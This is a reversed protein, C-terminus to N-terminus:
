VPGMKTKAGQPPTKAPLLSKRLRVPAPIQCNILDAKDFFYGRGTVGHLHGYYYGDGSVTLYKEKLKQYISDPQHVDNVILETPTLAAFNIANRHPVLGAEVIDNLIARMIGCHNDQPGTLQLTDSKASAPKATDANHRSAAKQPAALSQASVDKQDSAAKQPAAASQASAPGQSSAEKQPAAASQASAPSPIAVRTVLTDPVTQWIGTDRPVILKQHAAVRVRLQQRAVDILGEKIVIETRDPQSTVNFATGLVTITLDNVAIRFPNAADHAVTFFADGSLHIHRDTTFNKSYTIKATAALQISSGDPLIQTIPGALIVSNNNPLSPRLLWLLTITILIAAAALTAIAPWRRDRITASPIMTRRDLPTAGPIISRRDLPTAGPIISRRDKRIPHASAARDGFKTPSGVSSPMDRKERFRLLAAHVDPTSTAALARAEAVILHDAEENSM